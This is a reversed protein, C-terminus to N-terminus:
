HLRRERAAELHMLEREARTMPRCVVATGYAFVGAHLGFIFRNMTTTTQFRTRVIATAGADQCCGCRLAGLTLRRLLM